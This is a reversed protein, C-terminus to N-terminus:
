KMNKILKVLLYGIVLQTSANIVYNIIPTDMILPILGLLYQSLWVLGSMSVFIVIVALLSEKSFNKSIFPM